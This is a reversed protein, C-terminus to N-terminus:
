FKIGLLLSGGIGDEEVGFEELSGYNVAGTILVGDGLEYGVGGLFRNTEEDGDDEDDEFGYMVAFTWPGTEYKVGVNFIDRQDIDDSDESEYRGELTWTGSETDFEIEAGIGFATTTDGAGGAENEFGFGGGIEITFPEFEGVYRGAFVVRNDDNDSGTAIDDDDGDSSTDPQWSVGLTFGFLNPTYYHVGIDDDGFVEDLQEGPTFNFDSNFVGVRNGLRAVGAQGINVMADDNGGVMITGFSSRVRVWNEDIVDDDDQDGYIELEVRAEITIGNDLTGKGKFHIEGDRVVHISQESIGEGIDDPDQNDGFGGLDAANRDGFGLGVVAFGGLKLKVDRADATSAVGAAAVLATTGILLKKM